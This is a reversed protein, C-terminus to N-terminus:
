ISICMFRRLNESKFFFFDLTVKERGSGRREEDLPQREYINQSDTLGAWKVAWVFAWSALFPILQAAAALFIYKQRAFSLRRCCEPGLNRAAPRVALV